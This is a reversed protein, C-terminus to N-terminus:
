LCPAFARVAKQHAHFRTAAACHYPRAPCFPARTKRGLGSVPTAGYFFRAQRTQSLAALKFCDERVIEIKGATKKDHAGFWIGALCGPQPDNRALFRQRSRYVAIPALANDPFCEAHHLRFKGGRIDYHLYAGPQEFLVVGNCSLLQQM